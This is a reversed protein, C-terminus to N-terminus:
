RLQQKLLGGDGCLARQVAPHPDLQAAEIGTIDGILDAISFLPTKDEPWGPSCNDKKFCQIHRETDRGVSWCM